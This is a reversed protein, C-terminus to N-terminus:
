LGTSLSDRNLIIFDTNYIKLEILAEVGQPVGSSAWDKVKSFTDLKM